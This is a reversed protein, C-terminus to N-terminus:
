EFIVELRKLYDALQAALAPLRDARQALAETEIAGGIETLRDFGYGAGAGKMQHGLTQIRNFDGAQLASLITQVDATRHELFGPILAALDTDIKIKIKGSDAASM